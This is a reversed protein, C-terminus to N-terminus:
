AEGKKALYRVQYVTQQTCGMEDAIKRADWGARTLAMIKGRDIERREKRAKSLPEPKEEEEEEDEEQEEEPEEEEEDLQESVLLVEDEEQEEEDMWSQLADAALAYCDECFDNSSTLISSSFKITAPAGEIERGCKDCYYVMKVM